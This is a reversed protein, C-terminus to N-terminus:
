DKRLAVRAVLACIRIARFLKRYGRAIPSTDLQVGPIISFHIYVSHFNGRRITLSSEDLTRVLIGLNKIVM